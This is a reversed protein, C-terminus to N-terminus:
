AAEGGKLEQRLREAEAKAAANRAEAGHGRYVRAGVKFGRGDPQGHANLRVPLEPEPDRQTPPVGPTVKSTRCAVRRAREILWIPMAEGRQRYEQVLELVQEPSLRRRAANRLYEHSRDRSM